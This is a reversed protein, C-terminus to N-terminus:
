ARMSRPSAHVVHIQVSPVIEKDNRPAVRNRRIEAAAPPLLFARHTRHALPDAFVHQTAAIMTPAQHAM